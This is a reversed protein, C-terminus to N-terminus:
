NQREAKARIWDALQVEDIDGAALGRMAHVVEEEPVVLTWGNLGLFMMMTLFATRKNGDRFPHNASLGYANAAALAPLDVDEEYHWKNQARTLAADLAADDRLGPLGGHERIQDHQAAEVALRPVWKPEKRRAM